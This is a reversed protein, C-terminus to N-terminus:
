EPGPVNLAILGDLLALGAALWTKQSDSLDENISAIHRGYEKLAQAILFVFFRTGFHMEVGKRASWTIM